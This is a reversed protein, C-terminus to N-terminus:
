LDLKFRGSTYKKKRVTKRTILHQTNTDSDVENKRGRCADYALSPLLTLIGDAYAM